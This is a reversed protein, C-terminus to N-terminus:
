LSSFDLSLKILFSIISVYINTFSDNFQEKMKAKSAQFAAARNDHRKYHACSNNFLCPYVQACNLWHRKMTVGRVTKKDSEKRCSVAQFLRGRPREHNLMWLNCCIQMLNRALEFGERCRPTLDNFCWMSIAGVKLVRAIKLNCSSRSLIQMLNSRWFPGQLPSSLPNESM